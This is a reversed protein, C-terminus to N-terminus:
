ISTRQKRTRGNSTFQPSHKRPRAVPTDPGVVNEVTLLNCNLGASIRALIALTPNGGAHVLASVQADTLRTLKAVDRQSLNKDEMIQILRRAIAFQWEQFIAEDKSRKSLLEEIINM